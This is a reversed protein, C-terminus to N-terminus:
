FCALIVVFAAFMAPPMALVLWRYRIPPFLCLLRGTAYFVVTSLVVLAAVILADPM